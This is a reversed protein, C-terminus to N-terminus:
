APKGKAVQKVAKTKAIHVREGKTIPELKRTARVKQTTAGTSTKQSTGKTGKRRTDAQKMLTDHIKDPHEALDANQERWKKLAYGYPHARLFHRATRSMEKMPYGMRHPKDLEFQILPVEAETLNYYDLFSVYMQTTHVRSYNDGSELLGYYFASVSDPLNGMYVASDVLVENYAEKYKLSRELMDRLSDSPFPKDGTGDRNVGNTCGGELSGFDFYHSCLVQPVSRPHHFAAPFSLSPARIRPPTLSHELSHILVALRVKNASPKLIMGADSFGPHHNDNIVSTSLWQASNKCWGSNCPAWPLAEKAQKVEKPSLRINADTTINHHNQLTGDFGHVLLGVSGLANGPHGNMFLEKIDPVSWKHCKHMTMSCNEAGSKHHEFVNNQTTATDVAESPPPDTFQVLSTTEAGGRPLLTNGARKGLATAVSVVLLSRLM